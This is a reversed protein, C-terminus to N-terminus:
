RDHDYHLTGNNVMASVYPHNHNHPGNHNSYTDAVIALGLYLFVQRNRVLQDKRVHGFGM